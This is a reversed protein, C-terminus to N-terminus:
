PNLETELVRRTGNFNGFLSRTLVELVILEEIVDELVFAIYFPQHPTPLNSIAMLLRERSGQADSLRPPLALKLKMAGSLVYFHLLVQDIMEKCLKDIHENERISSNPFEERSVGMRISSFRNLIKQISSLIKSYTEVPFNFGEHNTEKLSKELESYSIRLRLELNTLEKIKLPDPSNDSNIMKLIEVLLASIDQYVLSIGKRVATRAQYPWINRSVFVGVIVGLSVATGRRSAIEYISFTKDLLPDEM